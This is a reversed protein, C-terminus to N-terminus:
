LDGVNRVSCLPDLFAIAMARQERRDHLQMRLIYVQM